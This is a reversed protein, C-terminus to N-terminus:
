GEMGDGNRKWEYETLGAVGRLLGNVMGNVSEGRKKAAAEVTAKRGKPVRVLFSDYNNRVYKDVAKMTAKTYAM